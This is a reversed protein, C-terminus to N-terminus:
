SHGFVAMYIPGIEHDSIALTECMRQDDIAPTQFAKLGLATGVLLATHMFAGCETYVFRYARSFRYKWSFQSWDVCIVLMVPAHDVYSQRWLLASFRDLNEPKRVLGLQHQEPAYHYVAFDRELEPPAGKGGTIVFAAFPAGQSYSQSTYFQPRETPHQPKFTWALLTSLDQLTLSTNRFDRATRRKQVIQRFDVDLSAPKPMVVTALVNPSYRTPPDSDPQVNFQVHYRTMVKPNGSYDHSWIMNRTARHFDLADNWEVDRWRLEGQTLRKPELSWYGYNVLQHVLNAAADADLGMEAIFRSTALDASIQDPMTALCGALDPSDTILEERESGEGWTVQLGSDDFSRRVSLNPQTHLLKSGALSHTM